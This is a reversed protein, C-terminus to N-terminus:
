VAVVLHNTKTKSILIVKNKYNGLVINSGIGHGNRMGAGWDLQIKGDLRSDLSDWDEKRNYSSGYNVFSIELSIITNILEIEPYLM